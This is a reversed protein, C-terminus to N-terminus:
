LKWWFKSENKIQRTGSRLSNIKAVHFNVAVESIINNNSIEDYKGNYLITPPKITGNVDFISAKNITSLEVNNITDNSFSLAVWQLYPCTDHDPIEGKKFYKKAYEDPTIVLHVWNPYVDRVIGILNFPENVKISYNQIQNIKQLETLTSDRDIAKIKIARQIFNDTNQM